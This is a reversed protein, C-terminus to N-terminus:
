PFNSWTPSGPLRFRGNVCDVTLGGTLRALTDLLTEVEPFTPDLNTHAVISQVDDIRTPPTTSHLEIRANCARLPSVDSPPAISKLQDVLEALEDPVYEPDDNIQITLEVPKIHVLLQPIVTAFGRWETPEVSFGATTLSTRLWDLLRDGHGNRLWVHAA